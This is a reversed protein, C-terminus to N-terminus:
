NQQSGAAHRAECWLKRIDKGGASVIRFVERLPSHIFSADRKVPPFVHRFFVEALHQPPPQNSRVADHQGMNIELLTFDHRTMRVLVFLNSVDEFASQTEPDAFILRLDDVHEGAFHQVDRWVHLVFRLREFVREVDVDEARWSLVPEVFGVVIESVFLDCSLSVEVECGYALEPLSLNSWGHIEAEFLFNSPNYRATAAAAAGDRFFASSFAGGHDDARAVGRRERFGGGSDSILGACVYETHGSVYGLPHLDFM